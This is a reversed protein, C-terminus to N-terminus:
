KKKNYNKKRSKFCKASDNQAQIYGSRWAKETNTLRVPKGKKSMKIKKDNTLHIGNSLEDFFKERKEQPNLLTIKNGKRTKVVKAM